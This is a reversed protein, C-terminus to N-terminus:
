SDRDEPPADERFLAGMRSDAHAGDLLSAPAGERLVRGDVLVVVRDTFAVLDSAVHSALVLAARRSVAEDLFSALGERAM